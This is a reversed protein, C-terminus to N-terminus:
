ALPYLREVRRKFREYLRMDNLPHINFEIIMLLLVLQKIDKGVCVELIRDETWQPRRCKVLSYLLDLEAAQPNEKKLNFYDEFLLRIMASSRDHRLLLWALLLAAAVGPGGEWPNQRMALISSVTTLAGGLLPLGIRFWLSWSFRPRQAVPLRSLTITWVCILIGFAAVATEIAVM